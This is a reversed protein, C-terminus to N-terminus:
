FSLSKRTQITVDKRDIIRIRIRRPKGTDSPYYGVTYQKKLEVAIDQFAEKLNKANKEYLRGASLDALIKLNEFPSVLRANPSNSDKIFYSSTKFIIPYLLTDSKHLINLIQSDTYAKENIIGDTLVIIAKRGKVSAFYNNVIRYIAENMASGSQSAISVRDVAKSLKKRDSTFESLFLTKYDFSVILGKDEPRLVKIFDRAAKRINDLVPKTSFSTDILIAVNTPSQEDLFFEIEQEDGDQLILFNEKKLGSVHRGGSDSVTLPITYLLTDIKIPTDDSTDQAKVQNKFVLLAFLILISLQLRTKM